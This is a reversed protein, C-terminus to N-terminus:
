EGVTHDAGFESLPELAASKVEVSQTTTQCAM